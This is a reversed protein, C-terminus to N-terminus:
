LEEKVELTKGTIPCSVTKLKISKTEHNGVKNGNFDEANRYFNTWENKEGYKQAADGYNKVMEWYSQDPLDETLALEFNEELNKLTFDHRFIILKTYFLISFLEFIEICSFMFIITYYLIFLIFWM